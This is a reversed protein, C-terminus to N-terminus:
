LMRIQSDSHTLQDLKVQSFFNEATVAPNDFLQRLHRYKLFQWGREVEAKLQPDSNLKYVVLNARSGPLIILANTGADPPYPTGFVPESIAASALVFFAFHAEMGKQWLQVTSGPAQAGPHTHRTEVEFGLRRGLDALLGRASEIDQRRAAPSERERAKWRRDEASELEAYSELCATILERDPTMLGPFQSCIVADVEAETVGPNHILCRVVEMEVRDALPIKRQPGPEGKLWWQGAELSQEKGRLYRGQATVAEKIMTQVQTYSQSPSAEAETGGPEPKIEPWLSRAKAMAQLAAAHLRLYSSPQGREELLENTGSVAAQRSAISQVREIERDKGKQWTVQILEQDRRLAMGTLDLSASDAALVAASLFGPEAEGILGLIPTGSRLHPSLSTFAAALATTHWGWDYRRRRLVSKFPGVAERGWLWGAWLASLTWFAQNPRPLTATVAQIDVTGLSAALDKLRGEFLSIGGGAPPQEPWIVLPIPPGGQSFLPIAQELSTWINNERFHGPITLQRPRDRTSHYAWMSNAQDCAHLLLVQLGQRRAPLLTIGELKNILNFLAYVARPLYVELAEEVNSRDPDNMPAVRELARARHMGGASFGAARELDEPVAPHEGTDGCFPCHYIRAYPGPEGRQWLFAEASIQRGCRACITAYLGRIHPEMREDGKPSSGLAALAAVLDDELPPNAATEILVRNVPNNAAVLVRYGARAAEVAALPNAGFPDIVWSGPPVHGALWATTIGEPVVPLYRGLPQGGPIRVGPIFSVSEAM